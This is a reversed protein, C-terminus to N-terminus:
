GERLPHEQGEEEEEVQPLSLVLLLPLALLHFGFLNGRSASM